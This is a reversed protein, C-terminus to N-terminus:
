ALSKEIQSFVAPKFRAVGGGIFVIESSEAHMKELDWRGSVYNFLYFGDVFKVFGKARYVEKPISSVFQKFKEKDFMRDTSYSFHQIDSTNHAHNKAAIRRELEAGFFVDTDTECKITKVLQARPNMERLSKEISSLQSEDVLDIKNLLIIDAGEIQSLGTQSIRPFRIMGDADVVVVVSDLKVEPMSDVNVIIADPEAVGTTEVVIAEPSFKEIVERVAAEFEGTMSCCVCGGSIEMMDVNKGQIVKGDIGIKGFENMIIAIRRKTQKIIRRLLTTKGAGLYGTVITIPVKGSM